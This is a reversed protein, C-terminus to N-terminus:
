IETWEESVFETTSPLFVSYKVIKVNIREEETECLERFSSGYEDSHAGQENFYIYKPVDTERERFVVVFGKGENHQYVFSFAMFDNQDLVYTTFVAFDQEGGEQAEFFEEPTLAVNGQRDTFEFHENLFAVLKESTDFQAITEDFSDLIASKPTNKPEKPKDSKFPTPGEMINDSTFIIYFAFFLLLLVVIAVPIMKIVKAKDM